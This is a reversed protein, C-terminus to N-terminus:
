KLVRCYKDGLEYKGKKRPLRGMSKLSNEWSFGIKKGDNFAKEKAKADELALLITKNATYFPSLKIFKNNWPFPKERTCGKSMNNVNLFFIVRANVDSVM